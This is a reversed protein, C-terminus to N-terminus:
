NAAANAGTIAAAAAGIISSNKYWIPANESDDSLALVWASAKAAAINEAVVDFLSKWFNKWFM